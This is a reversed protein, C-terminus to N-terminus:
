NDRGEKRGEIGSGKGSRGVKGERGKRGEEVKWEGGECESKGREENGKRGEGAMDGM